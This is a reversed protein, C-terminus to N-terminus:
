YGIIAVSDDESEEDEEETEDGVDGFTKLISAELREAEDKGHLSAIVEQFSKPIELLDIDPERLFSISERELFDFIPEAKLATGLTKDKAWSNRYIEWFLLWHESKPSAPGVRKLLESIKTKINIKREAALRIALIRSVDDGKTLVEELLHKEPKIEFKLFGFIIWSLESTIARRLEREAKQHLLARLPEKALPYGIRSYLDLQEYVVRLTGSEAFASARLITQWTDWITKPLVVMRMRRIFYNLVYADPNQKALSCAFAFLDLLDEARRLPERSLLKLQTRWASDLEDRSPFAGSKSPNIELEFESLAEGARELIGDAEAESSVGIEYDDYFRVARESTLGLKEDVSTLLAEALVLSTDPGVPIGVTQGDQGIRVYEDLEGAFTKPVRSRLGAKAATKGMIAWEISHTYVSRYFNRVDFKLVLPYAGRIALKRIRWQDGAIDPM